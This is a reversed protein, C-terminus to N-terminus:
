LALGPLDSLSQDFGFQHDKVLQSVQREAGRAARQQEVKEALEVLAGTDDDGGVEAETFPSADEAIGFHGCREEIAEGVAAVNQLGSVVAVPELGARLDCLFFPLLCGYQGFCLRADM